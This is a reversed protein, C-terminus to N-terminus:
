NGMKKETQLLNNIELIMDIMPIVMVLKLSKIKNRMPFHKYLMIVVLMQALIELLMEFILDLIELIM